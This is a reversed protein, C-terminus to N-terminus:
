GLRGCEWDCYESGALMCQGDSMLHCDDFAEDEEFEGELEDHFLHDPVRDM